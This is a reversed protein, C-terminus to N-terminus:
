DAQRLWTEFELSFEGNGVYRESVYLRDNELIKIEAEFDAADISNIYEYVYIGEDPVSLQNVLRWLDKRVTYTVSKRTETKVQGDNEEDPVEAEYTPINKEIVRLYLDYNVEAKVLKLRIFPDKAIDVGPIVKEYHNKKVEDNYEYVPNDSGAEGNQEVQHKLTYIGNELIAKHELLEFTKVGAQAVRAGDDTNGSVAYKAFMGCVLLLSFATLIFIAGTVRFLLNQFSFKPKSLHKARRIM